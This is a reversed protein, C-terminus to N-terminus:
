KASIFRTRRLDMRYREEFEEESSVLFKRAEQVWSGFGSVTGYHNEGRAM